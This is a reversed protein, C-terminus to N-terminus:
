DFAIPANTNTEQFLSYMEDLKVKENHLRKQEKRLDSTSRFTIIRIKIEQIVYILACLFCPFFPLFIAAIPLYDNVM